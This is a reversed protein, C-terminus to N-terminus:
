DTRHLKERTPSVIIDRCHNTNKLEQKYLIFTLDDTFGIQSLHLTIRLCPRTITIQSFGLCLCVCDEVPCRLCAAYNNINIKVSIRTDPTVIGFSLRITM